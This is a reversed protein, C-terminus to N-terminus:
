FVPRTWSSSSVLGAPFDYVQAHANISYLQGARKRPGSHAAAM